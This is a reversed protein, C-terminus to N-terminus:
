LVPKLYSYGVIPTGDRQTHMSVVIGLLAGDSEAFCGGGSHGRNINNDIRVLGNKFGVTTVSGYTISLRPISRDFFQM